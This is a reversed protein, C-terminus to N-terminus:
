GQKKSRFYVVLTGIAIPVSCLYMFLLTLLDVNSPNSINGHILLDMIVIFLPVLFTALISIYLARKHRM